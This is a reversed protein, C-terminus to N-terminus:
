GEPHVEVVVEVSPILWGRPPVSSGIRQPQPGPLRKINIGESIWQRKPIRQTKGSEPARTRDSNRIWFRSVSSPPGVNGAVQEIMLVETHAVTVSLNAAVSLSICTPFKREIIRGTTRCCGLFIAEDGLVAIGYIVVPSTEILTNVFNSAIWRARPIVGRTEAEAV